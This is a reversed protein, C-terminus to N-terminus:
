GEFVLDGSPLGTVIELARRVHERHDGRLEAIHHTVLSHYGYHAANRANIGARDPRGRRVHRRALKGYIAAQTAADRAELFCEAAPLEGLYLFDVVRM